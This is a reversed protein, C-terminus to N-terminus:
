AIIAASVGAFHTEVDKPTAWEDNSGGFFTQFHFGRFSTEEHQRIIVNKAFIKSEGNVFLEIEGDAKGVTNLKVREALVTWAGKQYSYAGRAISFGYAGDPKTGPLANFSEDNEPTKPVYAYVEGMGDARWMMRLSFCKDRGEQRGGSCGYADEPSSGGFAGPVKGGKVWEFNEPFYVAYSFLMETASEYSFDPVGAPDGLYFGFGGRPNGSPNYSGKPYKAQFAKTGSPADGPADVVDQTVQKSIRTASLADLSLEVFSANLGQVADEPLTTFAKKYPVPFFNKVDFVGGNGGPIPVSTPDPM